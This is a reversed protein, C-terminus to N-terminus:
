VPPWASWRVSSVSWPPCLQCSSCRLSRRASVWWSSPMVLKKECFGLWDLLHCSLSRRLLFGCLLLRSRRSHNQGHHCTAEINRPRTVNSSPLPFRLPLSGAAATSLRILQHMSPLVTVLMSRTMRCAVGQPQHGQPKRDRVEFTVTQIVLKIHQM